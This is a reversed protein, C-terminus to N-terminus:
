QKVVYEQETNFESTWKSLHSVRYKKLLRFM